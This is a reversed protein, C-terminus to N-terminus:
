GGEVWGAGYFGHAGFCFVTDCSPFGVGVFDFDVEGVIALGDSARAGFEM